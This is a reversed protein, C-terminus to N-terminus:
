TCAYPGILIEGSACIRTMLMRATRDARLKRDLFAITGAEYCGNLTLGAACSRQFDALAAVQDGRRQSAVGARWSSDVDNIAVCAATPPAIPGPAAEGLAILWLLAIPLLM